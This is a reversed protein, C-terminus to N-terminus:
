RFILLADFNCHGFQYLGFFAPIFCKKTMKAKRGRKREREKSCLLIIMQSKNCQWLFFIIIVSFENQPWVSYLLLVFLWDTQVLVMDCMYLRMWVCLSTLYCHFHYNLVTEVPPSLSPLFSMEFSTGHREALMGFYQAGVSVFLVSFIWNTVIFFHFLNWVFFVPSFLAYVVLAVSFASLNKNTGQEGVNKQRWKVKVPAFFVLACRQFHIRNEIRNTHEFANVLEDADRM